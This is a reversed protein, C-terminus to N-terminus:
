GFLEREFELRSSSINADANLRLDRIRTKIIDLEYIIEEQIKLPPLPIKFNDLESTNINAQCTVQRSTANIQTRIIPSNFVYNIFFPNAISKDIKIRILYSAFIYKKEENFVCTKGVLEKSNTRNFLIDGRNLLLKDLETQKLSHIYKLDETNLEGNVINNMRLVPYASPEKSAKNSTGYQYSCVTSGFKTVNYKNGWIIAEQSLLYNFDYDWRSIDKYNVFKIDKFSSAQPRCLTIGLLKMLDSAMYTELQKAEERQKEALKIQSNYKDVFEMQREITPLPIEINGMSSFSLTQRVSGTTSERILANFKATRFLIYLFEPLLGQRCSFVVYAPSIYNYKQEATKLGISGVNVRYPNYALFGDKVVKYPQNINSGKEIYADFLGTKNNVGLIPFDKDPFDFPKVKTNEEQIYDGLKVIPYSSAFKKAAYRKFDWLSVDTFNIFNLYLFNNNMSLRSRVM